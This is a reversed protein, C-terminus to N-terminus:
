SSHMGPELKDTETQLFYYYLEHISMCSDCFILKLMYPNYFSIIIIYLGTLTYKEDM